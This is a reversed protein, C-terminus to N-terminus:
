LRRRGQRSGFKQFTQCVSLPKLVDDGLNFCAHLLTQNDKDASSLDQDLKLLDKRDLGSLQLKLDSWDPKKNKPKIMPKPKKKNSLTGAM